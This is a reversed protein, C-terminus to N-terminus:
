KVIFNLKAFCHRLDRYVDDTKAVTCSERAVLVVLFGSKLTETKELRYYAERMVRKCRNRSVAGGLKKTATLGVRNIRSKLPNERQLRNAHYDPLIYVCVNREVAKKGKSYVKNYLHNETIPYLKM